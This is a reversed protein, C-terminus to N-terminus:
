VPLLDQWLPQVVNFIVINADLWAQDALPLRLAEDHWSNSTIVSCCDNLFYNVVHQGTPSHGLDVKCTPHQFVKRNDAVLKPSAEDWLLCEHILSDFGHLCISALGACNLELVSGIKFLARVFETKGLRSPGYLVLCTKRSQCPRRVELLWSEVIPWRPFPKLLSRLATQVAEVRASVLAATKNRYWCDLDNLRRSCAKGCSILESRAAEYSIKSGEIMNFVWEPNVPFDHFRELPGGRHIAGIKPALTYYAGAWTSRATAKGWLSDRMHPLVSMFSLATQDECRMASRDSKLFLHGHLRLQGEKEWTRFCIEVGCAWSSVHLLNALATAHLQFRSCIETVCSLERVYRTIHDESYEQLKGPQLAILGWDGQYTLLVATSQLVLRPRVEDEPDWQRYSYSKIYAPASTYNVFFVVLRHKQKKVLVQLDKVALQLLERCCSSDDTNQVQPNGELWRLFKNYVKKYQQRADLKVFEGEQFDTWLGDQAAVGVSLSDWVPSGKALLRRRVCRGDSMEAAPLVPSPVDM